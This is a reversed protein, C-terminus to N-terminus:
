MSGKESARSSLIPIMSRLQLILIEHTNKSIVNLVVGALAYSVTTAIAAGIPGYSPILVLNLLINSAAGIVTRVLALKTLGENINWPGQAVGLFVFLAAWIHIALIPAAGEYQSGYLTRTVFGSAFTMPIAIGLAIASM